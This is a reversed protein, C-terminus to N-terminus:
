SGTERDCSKKKDKKKKGMERWFLYTIDSERGEPMSVANLLQTVFRSFHRSCLRVPRPPSPPQLGGLNQAVLIKQAARSFKPLSTEM